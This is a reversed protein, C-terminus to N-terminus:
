GWFKTEGRIEAVDNQFFLQSFAFNLENWCLNWSFIYQFIWIKPPRNEFTRPRSERSAGGGGRRRRGQHTHTAAPQAPLFRVMAGLDWLVWVRCLMSVHTSLKRFALPAKGSTATWNLAFHHIVVSKCMYLGLILTLVVMVSMPKFRHKMLNEKMKLPHKQCHSPTSGREPPARAGEFGRTRRGQMSVHWWNGEHWQFQSFASEADNGRRHILIHTRYAPVHTMCGPSHISGSEPNTGWM